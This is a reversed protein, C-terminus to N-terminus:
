RGFRVGIVVRPVHVTVNGKFNSPIKKTGSYMVIMHANGCDSILIAIFAQQDNSTIRVTGGPTGGSYESWVRSRLQRRLGRADNSINANVITRTPVFLLTLVFVLMISIVKKVIKKMIFRGRKIIHLIFVKVWGKLTYKLICEFPAEFAVEM